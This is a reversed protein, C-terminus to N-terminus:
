IVELENNKAIVDSAQSITVGIEDDIIDYTAYEEEYSYVINMCLVGDNNVSLLASPKHNLNNFSGSKAVPALNDVSEDVYAETALGEISPISDLQDKVDQDLDDTNVKDKAALAGIKPKNKIYDVQSNDLQNWDPQKVDEKAAFIERLADIDVRVKGVNKETGDTM